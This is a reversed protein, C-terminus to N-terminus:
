SGAKVPKRAYRALFMTVASAVVRKIEAEPAPSRKANFLRPRV